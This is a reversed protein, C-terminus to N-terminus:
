DDQWIYALGFLAQVLYILSSITHWQALGGGFVGTAASSVGTKVAAILPFLAFQNVLTCVLMGIVLWLRGTRFAGLGGALLWYVLLYAGAVIGVWGIMSFLRGAVMGAVPTALSKFLIPAVIVGIVWIGGIWLTAFINKIGTGLNM